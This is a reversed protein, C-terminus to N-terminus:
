MHGVKLFLSVHDYTITDAREPHNEFLQRYLGAIHDIDRKVMQQPAYKEIIYSMPRGGNTISLITQHKMM